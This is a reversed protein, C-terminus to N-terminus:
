EFDTYHKDDVEYETVWYTRYWYGPRVGAKAKENLSTAEKEAIEKNLSCGLQFLYDGSTEVVYVKM